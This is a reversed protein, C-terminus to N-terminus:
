SVSITISLFHRLQLEPWNLLREQRSEDGTVPASVTTEVM